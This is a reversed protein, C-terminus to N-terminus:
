HGDGVKRSWRGTRSCIASSATNTRPCSSAHAAIGLAAAIAAATRVIVGRGPHKFSQTSRDRAAQEFWTPLSSPANAPM